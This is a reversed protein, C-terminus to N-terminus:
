QKEKFAKTAHIAGEIGAAGIFVWVISRLETVDFHSAELYLVVCLTSMLLFLRILSWIPHAADPLNKLSPRKM